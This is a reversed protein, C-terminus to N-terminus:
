FSYEGGCWGSHNYATWWASEYVVIVVQTIEIGLKLDVDAAICSYRLEVRFGM